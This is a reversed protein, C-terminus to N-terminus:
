TKNYSVQTVIMSFNFNIRIIVEHHWNKIVHCSNPGEHKTEYSHILFWGFHAAWNM